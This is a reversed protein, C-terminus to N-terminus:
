LIRFDHQFEALCLNAQVRRGACPALSAMSTSRAASPITEKRDSREGACSAIMLCAVAATMLVICRTVQYKM